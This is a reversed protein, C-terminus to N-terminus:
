TCKLVSDRVVDWIRAPMEGLWRADLEGSPEDDDAGFILRWLRESVSGNRPVLLREAVLRAAGEGGASLTLTAGELRPNGQPVLRVYPLRRADREPPREFAAAEFDCPVKTDGILFWAREGSVETEVILAGSLRGIRATM